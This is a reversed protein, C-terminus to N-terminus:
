EKGPAPFTPIVRCFITDWTCYYTSALLNVFDITCTSIHM